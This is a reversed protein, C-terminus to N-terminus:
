LIKKGPFLEEMYSETVSDVGFRDECYERVECIPREQKSGIVSVMAESMALPDGIPVLAGWRGSELIEDPGSPCNTAVVPTGIALAQILVGPLGESISSLVFVGAKKMFPLPNNVFGPLSVLDGIGYADIKAQLEDRQEGEGLIVLRISKIKISLVFADILTHFDKVKDLRGIGLVVPPEGSQFWPHPLENESDKYLRQGVLPNYIVKIKGPPVSVENRLDEAVGNSVAILSDALPYLARIFYPLIKGIFGSESEIKLNNSLTNAQRLVVRSRCGSMIRALVVVVNAHNLTSFITDPKEKSLYKVLSFLSRIVRDKDLDIVRISSPLGSLYPGEAKALVIDVMVDRMSLNHALEVMVREAGGGRLSPLFFAIKKTM